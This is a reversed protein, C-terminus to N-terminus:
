SFGEKQQEKNLSVLVAAPAVNVHGGMQNAPPRLQPHLVAVRAQEPGENSRPVTTKLFNRIREPHEFSLFM